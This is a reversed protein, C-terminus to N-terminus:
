NSGPAWKVLRTKKGELYSSDDEKCLSQFIYKVYKVVLWTKFTLLYKM